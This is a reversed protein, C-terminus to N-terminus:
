SPQWRHPLLEDIRHAPHSHIRGLVDRLYAWPDLKHLKASQVLSQVVAARQGALESGLFLWNKSGVKWPKIQREILNNDMPVRADGLHLTLESWHNLSYDIAQAIASGDLVRGRELQLWAQMEEWLPQSLRQRGELRAEPSLEVLQSEVHYIRAWRQLAEQAVPSAGANRQALEEFKRRAHAACGAARRGPHNMPDLVPGYGSYQDCVLTGKWAPEAYPPSRGGLFDRPFQAGRGTCFEYIVGPPGELVSRAYAWIYGKKTKGSGPDLLPVPTEDAHLVAAGLVFRKHAEYLPQLAAGGAGAWAALTSRPTHVGSRANIAEQRYYPLHDAFRSILTHAVLGSAPIGGDIVDPEAPEQTLTQCCRCAWKGYIHRHVFFQAPIIDLKESIDEGVRQMPAGCGANPCATDAPEHRHEVRQLHEPLAQRRPRRLPDKPVAPTAPLKGQLAALKARLDAEDEALTEAFLARQQATMAESKADFQWRKLRAVELKIKELQTDRWAIEKQKREIEADRRRIEDDRREIEAGRQDIEHAQREIYQRMQALAAQVPAPLAREDIDPMDSLGLM